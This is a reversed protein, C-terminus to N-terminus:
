ATHKRNVTFGFFRAIIKGEKLYLLIFILQDQHSVDSTCDVIVSFYQVTKIEEIFTRELHRRMITIFEDCIQHSLYSVSGKGKDAYHQM